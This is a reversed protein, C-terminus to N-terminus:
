FGIDHKATKRWVRNFTRPGEDLRRRQNADGELWREVWLFLDTWVTQPCAYGCWVRGFLSTVLFLSVAAVILAGTLLYIQQPWIVLDFFYARRGAIDLLVAQDPLGPGRYWRLWPVVYYIALFVILLAWKVRRAPGGVAAPYVKVHDAYLQGKADELRAAAARLHAPRAKRGPRSPHDANPRWARSRMETAVESDSAFRKPFALRIGGRHACQGEM